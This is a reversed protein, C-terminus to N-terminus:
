NKWQKLFSIVTHSLHTCDSPVAHLVASVVTLTPEPSDDALHKLLDLCDIKLVSWQLWCVRCVNYVGDFNPFPTWSIWLRHCFSMKMSVVAVHNAFENCDLQASPMKAFMWSRLRPCVPDLSAVTTWVPRSPHGLSLVVVSILSWKVASHNGVAHIVLFGWLMSHLNLHFSIM